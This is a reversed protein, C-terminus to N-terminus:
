VAPHPGQLICLARHMSHPRPCVQAASGISSPRVKEQTLVCWTYAACASQTDPGSRVGACLIFGQHLAARLARVSFGACSILLLLICHLIHASRYSGNYMAM